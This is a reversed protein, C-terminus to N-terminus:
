YRYSSLRAKKAWFIRGVQMTVNSLKLEALEQEHVSNLFIEDDEALFLVDKTDQLADGLGPNSLV